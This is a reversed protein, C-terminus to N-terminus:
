AFSNGASIVCPNAQTAGTVTIPSELVAGGNAIVRMYTQGLANAGFELVYAQFINFQFTILRPPLSFASAPTLSTACYLTGARSSAPGRYNVFMNRMVSAGINWKAYDVRGWISPSLEGAVFSPKITTILDRPM